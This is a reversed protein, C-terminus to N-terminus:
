WIVLILILLQIIALCTAGFVPMIFDFFGDVSWDWFKLSETTIRRNLPVGLHKVLRNESDRHERGFFVAPGVCAILVVLAIDKGFIWVLGLALVTFILQVAMSIIMHEINTPGLKIEPEKGNYKSQAFM